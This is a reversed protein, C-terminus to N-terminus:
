PFVIYFPLLFISVMACVQRTDPVNCIVNNLIKKMLNTKTEKQTMLNNSFASFDLVCTM